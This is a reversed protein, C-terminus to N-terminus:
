LPSPESTPVVASAPAETRSARLGLVGGILLACVLAASWFSCCVVMAASFGDADPSGHSFVDLCTIALASGTSFGLYRLLLNFSLASSTEAVPTGRVVLGPMAAFTFGSGFGGVAMVGAVAWITDHFLWFGLSAILYTTLGIPLMVDVSLRQAARQAARSGLVTTVAYPTLLLGATSVTEGLGFGSDVDAQVQVMVLGVLMYVAVGALFASLNAVLVSGARALALDVLPHRARGSRLVWGVALIVAAGALGLVLLSGWGWHQGQSIALLASLIAGALLAVSPWDLPVRTDELAPPFYRLCAALTLLTIVLGFGFATRVGGHQAVLATVPYGVGAGVVTSVSLMALAGRVRDAPLRERASALALAALSIGIGQLARGALLFGFPLPLACLGLGLVVACLGLLVVPRRRRDAGLRGLVPTAVTGVVFSATLAWQASSLPVGFERALTPVLPAGLSSVVSTSTTLLGLTLLLRTPNRAAREAVPSALHRPSRPSKGM